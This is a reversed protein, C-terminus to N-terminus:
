AVNIVKVVILMTSPEITVFPEFEYQATCRACRMNELKAVTRETDPHVGLHWDFVVEPKDCCLGSTLTVGQDIDSM